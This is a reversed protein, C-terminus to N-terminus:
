FMKFFILLLVQLITKQWTYQQNYFKNWIMPPIKKHCLKFNIRFFYITLRNITTHSKRRINIVFKNRKCFLIADREIFHNTKTNFIRKGIKIPFTFQRFLFFLKSLNILRLKIKHSSTSDESKYKSYKDM